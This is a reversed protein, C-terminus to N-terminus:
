PKEEEDVPESRSERLLRWAEIRADELDIGMPECWVEASFYAGKSECAARVDRTSLWAAIIFGLLFGFILGIIIGYVTGDSSQSM